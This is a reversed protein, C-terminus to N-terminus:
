RKELGGFDLWGRGKESPLATPTHSQGSLGMYKQSEALSRRGGVKTAQVLVVKVELIVEDAPTTRSM